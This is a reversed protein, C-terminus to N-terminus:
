RPPTPKADRLSPCAIALCLLVLGCFKFAAVVMHGTEWRMRIADFDSAIPGPKWTALVANAPAVLGVWAALAAALFAAAAIALRLTPKRDRVVFALAIAAIIAALDVPAGILAFWEFQRHFVMADRWLEAPWIALRPPAELVHAYSPGLSLATLVVSVVSALYVVM